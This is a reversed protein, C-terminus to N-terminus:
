FIDNLIMIRELSCIVLNRHHQNFLLPLTVEFKSYINLIAVNISRLLFM